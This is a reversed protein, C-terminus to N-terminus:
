ITWAAYNDGYGGVVVSDELDFKEEPPADPYEEKFEQYTPFETRDWFYETVDICECAKCEGNDYIYHEEFGMGYESSFAELKLNLERTNVDFLDVGKSYGSARCCSELSWACYGEIYLSTQDGHTEEDYGNAEFIRWFHNPVSYSKLKSMFTRCDTKKGVVKMAFDCYNPM